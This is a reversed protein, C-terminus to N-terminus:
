RPARVGLRELHANSFTGVPDLREFLDRADALRPTVHAITQPPIGNLKGWHPRADFDALASELDPLLARVADPENRWTFHIALTDRGYAGSLWLDDAAVTRLETILLYPAIREGLARVAGLAQAGVARDVFYETQIEDGNSPTSDLRFHPLRESWPGPEGGQRTLNDDVEAFLSQAAHRDRVAGLWLDPVEDHGAGLRTKRWVQGITPGLWDTFVSVSYAAGMVEDVQQLYAEWPMGRYIDQRVRFSPEIDLTVRVVVGYAGLGVALGAFDPDGRRVVTLEGRADVFEIARVATSLAGNRNGSGHTGTAVAGAISIHPLSGMNHLAWGRQELWAALVGYRTGASVTVSANAEDLVPDAPIDTVTVLTGASDALDNFSHRTGLARVPGGAAIAARVEDITTAEVLRPATFRYTGSWNLTM